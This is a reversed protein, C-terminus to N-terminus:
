TRYNIVYKLARGLVVTAM